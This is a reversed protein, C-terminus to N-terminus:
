PRVARVHLFLPVRQWRRSQPRTIAHEPAAPENLREILLGAETIADTYADLPRHASVFTMELGDRVVNDEYFSEELYSGSIVFPSDAADGEFGGASNLPHVIALCFRGGPELVRRVERVAGRLDDVDQLTMFAVVCDFTADPFPLAAADALYTEIQPDASQAADLMTPSVDVGVVDHGLTKLDRSLRGEGCGLDLTKGGAAPVSALFLDRHFRWYSDHGAKRAWAVWAAAHKEWSGGLDAVRGRKRSLPRDPQKQV